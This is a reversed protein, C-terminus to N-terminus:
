REIVKRKCCKKPHLPVVIIVDICIGDESLKRWIDNLQVPLYVKYRKGRREAVVAHKKVIFPIGNALIRALEEVIGIVRSM